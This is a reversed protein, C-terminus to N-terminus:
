AMRSTPYLSPLVEPPSGSGGDVSKRASNFERWLIAGDFTVARPAYLSDDLTKVAQTFGPQDLRRAIASTSSPPGDSWTARGWALLADRVARTDNATCAQHLADVLARAPVRPATRSADAAAAASGTRTRRVTWWLVAALLVVTLAAGATLGPHARLAAMPETASAPTTATSQEAATTTLAASTGDAQSPREPAGQAPNTTARAQAPAPAAAQAPEAGPAALVAITQAPLTATRQTQAAVDWWHVDIQPLTFSGARSPLLDFTQVLEAVGGNAGPLTRQDPQGPYQKVGDVAPAELRPLQQTSAGDARLTVTRRVTEGVRFTPTAPQWSQALEVGRAPLFWGSAADAPRGQVSLSVPNSRVRVERGPNMVRDILAGGTAGARMQALMEALVDDGFADDFASRRGARGRQPEEAVRAQLVVPPVTVEGSNQPFLAYQREHVMYRRGNVAQEFTRTDGRPEVRVGDATPETLAGERIGISDYVRVTYHVEGQIFPSTQDASAEVFLDPADGSRVTSPATAAFGQPQPAAGAAADLVTLTLPETTLDGAQLAPITIAGSRKPSLVVDLERTAEAHGNVVTVRQSQETGLIEFDAALPRLDPRRPPEDGGYRLTLRVSDGEHVVDHELSAQIDSAALAPSTVAVLLAAAVAALAGKLGHRIRNEISVM